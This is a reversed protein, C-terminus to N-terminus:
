TKGKAYVAVQKPGEAVVARVKNVFDGWGPAANQFWRNTATELKETSFESAVIAQVTRWTQPSDEGLIFWDLYLQMQSAQLQALRWRKGYKGSEVIVLSLDRQLDDYHAKLDNINHEFIRVSTRLLLLNGHARMKQSLTGNNAMYWKYVEDLNDAIAAAGHFDNIDMSFFGAAVLHACAEDMSKSTNEKQLEGAITRLSSVISAKGFPSIKFLTAYFPLSM